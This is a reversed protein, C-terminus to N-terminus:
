SCFKSSNPSFIWKPLPGFISFFGQCFHQYLVVTTCIPWQFFDCWLALRGILFFREIQSELQCKSVDMPKAKLSKVAPTRLVGSPRLFSAEQVKPKGLNLTKEQTKNPGPEGWKKKSKRFKQLTKPLM